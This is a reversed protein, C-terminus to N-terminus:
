ASVETITAQIEYDSTPKDGIVFVTIVGDENEAVFGIDKEYFIALQEVSPQLDVKSNETAGNVTVVQSHLFESETKWASAKLMISTLITPAGSGGGGRLSDLWEEETGKFGHMVAIEYASKGTIMDPISLYGRIEIYSEANGTASM